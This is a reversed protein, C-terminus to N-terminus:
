KWGLISDPRVLRPNGTEFGGSMRLSYGNALYDPIDHEDALPIYPGKKGLSVHYRDDEFRHPVLRVGAKKGRRVIAFLM